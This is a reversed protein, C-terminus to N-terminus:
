FAIATRTKYVIFYKKGTERKWNYGAIVSPKSEREDEGQHSRYLSSDHYLSRYRTFVVPLEHFLTRIVFTFLLISSYSVKQVEM